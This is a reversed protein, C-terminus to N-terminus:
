RLWSSAFIAGSSQRCAALGVRREVLDAREGDRVMTVVLSGAIKGPDVLTVQGGIAEGYRNDEVSFAASEDVGVGILDPHLLMLGFLRNQRGRKLFHQDVIAGELLGLGERTGVKTGDITSFDGEGTLMIRSMIATGASTGAFAIGDDYMQRLRELAERDELVDMIRNQDGGTFFVGTARALRRFFEERKVGKLSFPAPMVEAAGAEAFDGKVADYADQPDESAWPIVLIHAQRGGSWEMFRDVAREPWDGGGIMVLRQGAWAGSIWFLSLAVWVATKIKM